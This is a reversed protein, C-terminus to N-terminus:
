LAIRELLKALMTERAAASRLSGARRAIRQLAGNQFADVVAAHVYSKRCVAPTNALDAAIERMAALLQRNRGRESSKPEAAALQQIAKASADLTRFDKLSVARGTIERLANNVDRRRLPVVTGQENRYQFIRKGPLGCLKRLANALRRSTVTKEIEKGGKGNFALTVRAGAIRLDSKLLTTAGRTGHQRAYSESGPRLATRGILEILAAIGRERSPEPEALHRTVWRRIQPLAHTLRALRRAKRLERVKEWDAHYRYQARGAADRGVAQLHAHPNAAFRVSDYAPPVALRKLRYLTRPDRLPCGHGDLYVFGSGNRKRRITLDDTSVYHLGLRRLLRQPPEASSIPKQM